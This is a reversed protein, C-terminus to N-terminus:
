EFFKCHRKHKLGKQVVAMLQDGTVGIESLLRELQGDVLDKFRNHIETYEFKNEEANEFEGCNQDIFQQIPAKWVPCALYQLVYEYVWQDEQEVVPSPRKPEQKKVEKSKKKFWSFM